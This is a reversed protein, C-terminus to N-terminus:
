YPCHHDTHLSLALSSGALVVSSPLPLALVKLDHNETNLGEAKEPVGRQLVVNWAHVEFDANFKM